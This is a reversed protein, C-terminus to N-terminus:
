TQNSEHELVGQVNQQISDRIVKVDERIDLINDATNYYAEVEDRSVRHPSREGLHSYLFVVLEALKKIGDNSLDDPPYYEGLAVNATENDISYIIAQAENLVKNSKNDPQRSLAIDFLVDCGTKINCGAVVEYHPNVENGNLIDLFDKENMIEIDM